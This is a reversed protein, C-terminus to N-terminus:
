NIAIILLPDNASIEGPLLNWRLSHGGRTVTEIPRQKIILM